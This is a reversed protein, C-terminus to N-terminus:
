PRRLRADRSAAWAPPATNAVGRTMALRREMARVEEELAITEAQARVLATTQRGAREAVRGEPREAAARDGEMEARARARSELETLGAGRWTDGGRRAVGALGLAGGGGGVLGEDRGRAFMANAAARVPDDTPEEPPAFVTSAFPGQAGLASGRAGGVASWTTRGAGGIGVGWTSPYPLIEEVYVCTFALKVGYFVPDDMRDPNWCKVRAIARPANLMASAAPFMNADRRLCGEITPSVYLGGGHDPAAPHCVTTGPIYRTTGDYISVYVTRLDDLAAIGGPYVDLANGNRRADDPAFSDSAAVHRGGRGVAAVVKYATKAYWPPTLGHMVVPPPM